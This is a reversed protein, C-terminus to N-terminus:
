SGRRGRSWTRRGSRCRPSSTSMTASCRRSRAPPAASRCMSSSPAPGARLAEVMLHQTTNVGGTGYNLKEPNKKGDEILDQLTKWPKDKLVAIGILNDGYYSIFTFDKLM